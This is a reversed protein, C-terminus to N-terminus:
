QANEESLRNAKDRIRQLTGRVSTESIRLTEAAAKLSLDQEYYAKYVATELETLRTMLLEKALERDYRLIWDAISDHVDPLQEDNQASVTGGLIRARTAAKRRKASAIRSCTTCLWGVPVPHARLKRIKQMAKEFTEQVCEQTLSLADPHARLIAYARVFLMRAYKEYLEGLFIRDEDTMRM